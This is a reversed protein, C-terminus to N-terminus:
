EYQQRDKIWLNIMWSSLAINVELQPNFNEKNTMFWEVYYEMVKKIQDNTLQKQARKIATITKAYSIFPVVGMSNGVTDKWFAILEKYSRDKPELYHNLEDQVERTGYQEVLNSLIEKDEPSM